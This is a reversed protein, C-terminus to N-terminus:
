RSNGLLSKVDLLSAIKEGIGRVEGDTLTVASPLSLGRSSIDTSVSFSRGKSFNKYPPMVHLPHFLPRTEVGNMLLKDMMEDRGIGAGPALLISFLWYSNVTGPVEAPTCVEASGKLSSKYLEGIRVKRNVFERVREMQAVGVAAQLNTMRYNYGVLEHWYRRGPLMGHDRLVAAREFVSKDRFLLMGGEGTTITKNGFFSFAAVDGFAGLIRGKISSGLAEACDEIVFLGQEGAISLIEEMACPQGYLHVPLIAKTRRTIAKRVLDSDINWTAPDVDVIIPTAKAFLVSNITAAFTLDPVIVEDGPGIGLSEIALHLAATGNSVALAYPAGCYEAFMKEFRRVFMGQSSIWNTKICETVYSLENGTLVPEMVQIAHLRYISAYDVLRNEDDVLPIHRIRNDLMGVLAKTDTRINASLFERQMVDNVPVDLCTGSLILRRIDGDTLLGTLCGGDDVVFVIGQANRDITGLVDRLRSHERITLASIPPTNM